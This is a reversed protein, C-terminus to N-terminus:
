VTHGSREQIRERTYGTAKSTGKEKALMDVLSEADARNSFYFVWMSPAVDDVVPCMLVSDTDEASMCWACALNFHVDWVHVSYFPREVDEERDDDHMYCTVFLSM